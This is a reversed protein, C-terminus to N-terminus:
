KPAGPLFEDLPMGFSNLAWSVLDYQPALNERASAPSCGDGGSM